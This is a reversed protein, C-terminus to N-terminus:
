ADEHSVNVAPHTPGQAFSPKPWERKTATAFKEYDQVRVDWVSFLVETGAVPVFKMGLGNLFPNDKTAVHLTAPRPMPPVIDSRRPRTAAMAADLVGLAEAARTQLSANPTTAVAEPKKPAPPAAGGSRDFEAFRLATFPRMELRFMQTAIRSLQPIFTERDLGGGPLAVAFTRIDQESSQELAQTFTRGPAIRSRDFDLEAALAEEGINRLFFNYAYSVPEAVAGDAGAARLARRFLGRDAELQRAFDADSLYLNSLARVDEPALRDRLTVLAGPKIDDHVGHPPDKMGDSHCKICSVGNLIQRDTRSLDQVIAEPARALMKGDATTLLYGQLGNPLHFIFEGGDHQFAFRDGKSLGSGVPGLPFSTLIGRSGPDSAAFDYSKWYARGDPKGTRDLLAHREVLRNAFNSVGSKGRTFGARAVLGEAASVTSSRGLLFEEASQQGRTAAARLAEHPKVGLYAELHQEAHAPDALLGPVIKAPYLLQEYLPPQAAAFIFWDARLWLLDRTGSVAALQGDLEANVFGYPNHRAVLRWMAEDWGYRRLDLRYVVRAPDIPEPPTIAPHWSLSNILKSTAARHLDLDRASVLRPPQNHLTHLSLYRFWSREFRPFRNLDALIARMVDAEALHARDTESDDGRIWAALIAKEDAALPARYDASGPAGTSKPMRKKAGPDLSVLEFLKSAAPNGAVIVKADGRLVALNMSKDLVPDQEDKPNHCEVCRKELLARVKSELDATAASAPAAAAILTCALAAFLRSSSPLRHMAPAPSPAVLPVRQSSLLRVPSVRALASRAVAPFTTETPGGSALTGDRFAHPLASVPTRRPPAPKSFRGILFNGAWFGHPNNHLFIESCSSKLSFKARAQAVAFEHDDHKLLVARAPLHANGTAGDGFASSGLGVARM